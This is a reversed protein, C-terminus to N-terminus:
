SDINDTVNREMRSQRVFKFLIRKEITAVIHRALDLDPNTSSSALGRGDGGQILSLTLTPRIGNM